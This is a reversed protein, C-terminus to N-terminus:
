RPLPGDTRFLGSSTQEPSLLVIPLRLKGADPFAAGAYLVKRQDLNAKSVLDAAAFEAETMLLYCSPCADESEHFWTTLGFRRYGAALPIAYMRPTTLVMSNSPVHNQVISVLFRQNLTAYYRVSQRLRVANGMASLMWLLLFPYAIPKVRSWHLEAFMVAWGIPWLSSYILYYSFMPSASVLLVSALSFVAVTISLRSNLDLSRRQGWSTTLTVGVSVVSLLVLGLIWPRNLWDISGMLRLLSETRSQHQLHGSHWRFQLVARRVQFHWFALLAPLCLTTGLIVPIVRRALGFMWLLGVIAIVFFLCLPHILLSLGCFYGCYLFHRVNGSAFGEALFLFSVVVACLALGDMRGLDLMQVAFDGCWLVAFAVGAYRFGRRNLFLVILLAALWGGLFDPLRSVLTSFGFVSFLVKDLYPLVPGHYAWVKDGYPAWQSVAYTLTGGRSAKLAPYAFFAEDVSVQPLRSLSFGYLLCGGILIM